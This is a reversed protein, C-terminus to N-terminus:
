NREYKANRYGNFTSDLNHNAEQIKGLLTKM